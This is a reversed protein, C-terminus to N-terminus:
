PEIPRWRGEQYGEIPRFRTKYRMKDSQSIWYGLYVYDLGRLRAEEIQWCIAFNGLGRASGAEPDFFTYTASLGQPLVDTTALGLLRGDKRFEIFLTECWDAILFHQFSEPTPDDMGGGPHRMALYRQYLEFYEQTFRAPMRFVELDANRKLSRRQSRNPTFAQVPIRTPVCAQCQPCQPAYVHAGSRRFGLDILKGYMSSSMPARPDAVVSIALQEPLYNCDHPLTSFFLLRNM